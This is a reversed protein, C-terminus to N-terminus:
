FKFINTATCSTPNIKFYFISVKTVASHLFFLTPSQNLFALYEFQEMSIWWSSSRSIKFSYYTALFSGKAGTVVTAWRYM